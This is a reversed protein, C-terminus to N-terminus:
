NRPSLLANILKAPVAHRDKLRTMSGQSSPVVRNKPEGGRVRKRHHTHGAAIWPCNEKSCRLKIAGAASPDNFSYILSNKRVHSGYKCWSTVHEDYGFGCFVKRKDLSNKSGWPNEVYARLASNKAAWYAVIERVRYCIRDAHDLEAQTVNQKLGSYSNYPPSAWIVSFTADGTLLTRYDM